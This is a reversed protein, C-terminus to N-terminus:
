PEVCMYVQKALLDTIQQQKEKKFQIISNMKNNVFNELHKIDKIFFSVANYFKLLKHMSETDKM